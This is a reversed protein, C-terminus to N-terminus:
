PKDRLDFVVLSYEHPLYVVTISMCLPASFVLMQVYASMRLLFFRAGEIFRSLLRHTKRRQRKNKSKGTSLPPGRTM